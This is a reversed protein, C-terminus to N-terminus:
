LKGAQGSAAAQGVKQKPAAVPYFTYSLTLETVNKTEDDDVFAPDLFFSVAMDVKQGPQLTQQTFCFCQVKNFHLGVADPTVNFIAEGTIPHDSNNIAKYFALANEGVKVEIKNQEPEFTWPLEPSVNADFRVTVTRDLVVTSPKEAVQTTGAFGTAKCYLRYLPVSAFALGIMAAVIAVCTAAVAGHRTVATRKEGSNGGATM